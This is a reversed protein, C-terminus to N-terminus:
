GTALNAFRTLSDQFAVYSKGIPGGRQKAVILETLGPFVSDENYVADRYLFIVIDADQELAGSERLDSLLPRKDLRQELGRSLQSLAMVPCDLDRALVKLARSINSIELQRNEGSGSMLQLYDVIILGISGHQAKFKLARSRIDAVTVSSDDDLCLPSAEIDMFADRISVWDQDGLYGSKFRSSPVRSRASVIRMALEDQAMELSFFLVPKNADIAVNAAITTALASKGMAPRAGVIVLTGNTLGSIMRDLDTLGTRVGRVGDGREWLDSLDELLGVAGHSASAYTQQTSRGAVRLVAEQAERLAEQPSGASDLAKETLESGLSALERLAAANVVIPIYSDLLSEPGAEAVLQNLYSGGGVSELLGRVDLYSATVLADAPGSESAKVIADFITANKPRYFDSPKLLAACKSVSRPRLLMTGLIAREVQDDHPIPNTM